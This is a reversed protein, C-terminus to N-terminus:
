FPELLHQEVEVSVGGLLEAILIFLRCKGGRKIITGQKDKLPGSKVRVQQGAAFREEIRLPVGKEILDALDWLQNSLARQDAVHHTAVIRNTKLAWLRQEDSAKLFSYSPFLPAWTYRSRGRTLSKCLTVPLFHPVEQFRMEEALKKEQRPKTHVLIWEADTWRNDNASSLYQENPVVQTEVQCEDLLRLPFLYPNRESSFRIKSAHDSDSHQKQVLIEPSYGYHDTSSLYATSFDSKIM